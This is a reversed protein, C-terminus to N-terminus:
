EDDDDAEKFLCLGDNFDFYYGSAVNQNLFDLAADTIFGLDEILDYAPNDGLLEPQDREWVELEIEFGQAVALNVIAISFEIPTRVSAGEIWTGLNSETVEKIKVM